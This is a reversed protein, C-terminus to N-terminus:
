LMVHCSLRWVGISMSVSLAHGVPRTRSTDVPSGCHTVHAPSLTADRPTSHTGLVACMPM